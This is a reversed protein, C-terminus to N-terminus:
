VTSQMPAMRLTPVLDRLNDLLPFERVWSPGVWSVGAQNSSLVQVRWVQSLHINSTVEMNVVLSTPILLTSLEVNWESLYKVM